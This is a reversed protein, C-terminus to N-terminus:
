TGSDPPVPMNLILVSPTIHVSDPGEFLKHQTLCGSQKVDTLSKYEYDELLTSPIELRVMQCLNSYSLGKAKALGVLAQLWSLRNETSSILSWCSTVELHMQAPHSAKKGLFEFEASPLTDLFLEKGAEQEHPDDINFGWWVVGDRDGQTIRSGYNRRELHWSSEAGLHGSFMAKIPPSGFGVSGSLGHASQRATVETSEPGIAPTRSPKIADVRTLEEKADIVV